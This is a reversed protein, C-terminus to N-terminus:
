SLGGLPLEAGQAAAAKAAARVECWHITEETVHADRERGIQALDRRLLRINIPGLIPLACELSNIVSIVQPSVHACEGRIILLHGRLWRELNDARYHYFEARIAASLWAIAFGLAVVALIIAVIKM